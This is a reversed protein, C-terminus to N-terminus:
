QASWLIFIMQQMWYLIKKVVILSILKEINPLILFLFVYYKTHKFLKKMKM